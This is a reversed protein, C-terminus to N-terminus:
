SCATWAMTRSESRVNWGAHTGLRSIRALRSWENESSFLCMFFVWNEKPFSWDHLNLNTITRLIKVWNNACRLQKVRTGWFFGVLERAVVCFRTRWCTIGSTRRSLRASQSGRRYMHLTQWCSSRVTSAPFKNLCTRVFILTASIVYTLSFIAINKSKYKIPPISEFISSTYM